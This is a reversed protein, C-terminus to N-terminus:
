TAFVPWSVRFGSQNARRFATGGRCLWDASLFGPGRRSAFVCLRSIVAITCRVPVSCVAFRVGRKGRQLAGERGRFRADTESVRKLPDVELVWRCHSVPHRLAGCLFRQRGAHYIGVRRVICSGVCFGTTRFLLSSRWIWPYVKEM